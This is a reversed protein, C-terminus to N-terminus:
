QNRSVKFIWNKDHIQYGYSGSNPVKLLVKYYREPQFGSLPLSFYDGNNDKSLTTFNSFDVIADDTQASYIAYQSGSPLKYRDLYASSTAFTAAPYRYRAAFAIRPTSSEKYEPQLNVCVINYSENTDINPLTSNTVSENFKAEVVPSYITHTDKSFFKISKFSSLSSEDVYQKKVIFGQFYISGSQVKRIIDSVDMDVDAAKYSFSQSAASSTYWAGGGKTTIYSGTSLAAFSSTPWATSPTTLGQRYYWSVGETTEPLNGYRGIGMNWSQSIAWCELTYDLPIEQEETAYLKLNWTFNNPNLGLEVISASMAPYDFDVLIRSNYSSTTDVLKSLELVADLGTNKQPYREYITADKKPYFRLIM